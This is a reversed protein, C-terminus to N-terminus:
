FKLTTVGTSDVIQRGGLDTIGNADIGILKDYFVVGAFIGRAITTSTATSTGDFDQVPHDEFLVCAATGVGSSTGDVYPQFLQSVTNRALVQGASYGSSNYVLRVPLLLALAPSCALIIPFNKKFISGSFKVDISSM